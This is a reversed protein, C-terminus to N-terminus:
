EYMKLKKPSYSSLAMAAANSSDERMRLLTGQFLRKNDEIYQTAAKNMKSFELGMMFHKYFQHDKPLKEYFPIKAGKIQVLMLLRERLQSLAAEIPALKEQKAKALGKQKNIKNKAAEAKKIAEETEEIMEEV